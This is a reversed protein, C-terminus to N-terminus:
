VLYHSPTLLETGINPVGVGIVMLVRNAGTIISFDENMLM